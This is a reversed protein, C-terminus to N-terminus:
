EDVKLQLERQRRKACQLRGDLWQIHEKKADTM